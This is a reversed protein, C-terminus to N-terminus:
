IIHVVTVFVSKQWKDFLVSILNNRFPIIEFHHHHLDIYNQVFGPQNLKQLVDQYSEDTGSNAVGNHANNIDRLFVFDIFSYLLGDM